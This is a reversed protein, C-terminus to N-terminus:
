KKSEVYLHIMCYKNKDTISIESLIIGELNMQTTVPPPIKENKM